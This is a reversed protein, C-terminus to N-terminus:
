RVVARLGLSSQFRIVYGDPDTVVFQRVLAEHSESVRYGKVEPEMLLPWDAKHLAALVVDLDPVGIQFNIGRGFPQRLEDTLWNRGRGREELMLHSAGQTLYAFGESPREYAIAFGCLGCWFGISSDIQTVLLEPVLSPEFQSTM